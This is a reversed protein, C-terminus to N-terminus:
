SDNWQMAYVIISGCLGFAHTDESMHASRRNLDARANAGVSLFRWHVCKSYSIICNKKVCVVFVRILNFPHTPQNSDPNSACTLHYPLTQNLTTPNIIITDSLIKYYLKLRDAGNKILTRTHRAFVWALRSMHATQSCDKCVVIHTTFSRFWSFQDAQASARVLRLWRWARICKKPFWTGPENITAAFFLSLASRTRFNEYEGEFDM